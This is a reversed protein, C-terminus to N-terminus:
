IMKSDLHIFGTVDTRSFHKEKFINEHKDPQFSGHGSQGAKYEQFVMNKCGKSLLYSIFAEQKNELYFLSVNTYVLSTSLDGIDVNGKLYNEMSCQYYTLNTTDCVWEMYDWPVLDFGVLHYDEQFPIFDRGNACGFNIITTVYNPIYSKIGYTIPEPICGVPNAKNHRYYHDWNPM